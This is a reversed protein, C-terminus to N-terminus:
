GNARTLFAECVSIAEGTGPQSVIAGDQGIFSVFVGEPVAINACTGDDLTSVLHLSGDALYTFQWASTDADGGAWHRVETQFIRTPTSSQAEANRYAWLGGLLLIVAALVGTLSLLSRHM